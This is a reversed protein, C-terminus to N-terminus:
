ELAFCLFDFVVRRHTKLLWFDSIACSSCWKLCIKYRGLCVSRVSMVM